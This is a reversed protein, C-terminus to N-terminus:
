VTGGGANPGSNSSTLSSIIQGNVLGAKQLVVDLRNDQNDVNVRLRNDRYTYDLSTIRFATLRDLRTTIDDFAPNLDSIRIYGGGDRIVQWLPWKVGDANSIKPSTVSFDQQQIQEGFRDLTLAAFQTAQTMSLRTQKQAQEVTWFPASALTDTVSATGAKMRISYTDGSTQGAITDHTITTQTVTVVKANLSVTLNYLTDGAQVGDTLFTAAADILTTTGTGATATGTIFGYFVEIDSVYDWINRSLDLEQLDEVKVVWDAPDDPTRPIFFPLHKELRTGFSQPKLWYDWIQDASDSMKILDKVIAAPYRGGRLNPQWGDITPTLTGPDINTQDASSVEVFSALTSKLVDATSDTTAYFTADLLQEHRKWPGGCIYKVGDDTLQIEYIWGVAVPTLWNDVIAVRQGHHDQYRQFRDFRNKAKIRVELKQLGGPLAWRIGVDAPSDIFELVSPAIIPLRAFRIAHLTNTQTM